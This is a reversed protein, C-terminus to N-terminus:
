TDIASGSNTLTSLGTVRCRSCGDVPSCCGVAYKVILKNLGDIVDAIKLEVDRSASRLRNFLESESYIHKLVDGDFGGLSSALGDFERLTITGGGLGSLADVIRKVRGALWRTHWEDIGCIRYSIFYLRKRKEVVGIAMLRKLHRFLTRRNISTAGEIESFPAPGVANLFEVIKSLESYLRTL